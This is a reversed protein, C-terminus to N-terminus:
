SNQKLELKKGVTNKEQSNKRKRLFKPIGLRILDSYNTYPLISSFFVRLVSKHKVKM